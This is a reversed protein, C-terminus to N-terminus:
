RRGLQRGDTEDSVNGGLAEGRAQLGGRNGIVFAEVARARGEWAGTGIERLPGRTVENGINESIQWVGIGAFMLESHATDQLRDWRRRTRSVLAEGVFL